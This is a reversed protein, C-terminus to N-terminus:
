ADTDDTSEDDGEAAESNRRRLARMAAGAGVMGLGTLVMGGIALGTVPLGGGGPPTPSVSPAVSGSPSETPGVSGSPSGSPSESPGSSESPSGSPSESPSASPSNSLSDPCTHSLVFETPKGDEEGTIEASGGTLTWGSPTYAIAHKDSPNGIVAKVTHEDRNEDEFTLTVSVFEANPAGEAPLVFHWGDQGPVAPLQAGCEHPKFDEATTPVQSAKIPITTNALAPGSFVLVATAAAFTVAAARQLTRMPSWHSTLSTM